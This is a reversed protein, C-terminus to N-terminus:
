RYVASRIREPDVQRLYGLVNKWISHFGYGGNVLEDIAKERPWGQVVMRYMAIMTGTRDAGHLCHILYPGGAPDKVLRLVRVVDEDEIHWTKVSLEEDLLGTGAVAGRDSHFARLNIVRRIGLEELNKMGAATPQASRYLHDAVRFLNPVGAVALPQAWEAPRTAAGLLFAILVIVTGSGPLRFRSAGRNAERLDM